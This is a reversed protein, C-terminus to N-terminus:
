LKSIYRSGPGSILGAIVRGNQQVRVRYELCKPGPVSIRLIKWGIYRRGSIGLCNQQILCIENKRLYCKQYNFHRFMRINLSDIVLEAQIAVLESIMRGDARLGVRVFIRM